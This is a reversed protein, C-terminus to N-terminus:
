NIPPPTIGYKKVIAADIMGVSMRYTRNRITYEKGFWFSVAISVISVALLIKSIDFQFTLLAFGLLIWSIRKFVVNRSFCVHLEDEYEEIVGRRVAFDDIESLDTTEPIEPLVPKNYFLKLTSFKRKM